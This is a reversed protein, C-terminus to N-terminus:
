QDGRRGCGAAGAGAIRRASLEPQLPRPGRSVLGMADIVEPNDVLFVEDDHTENPTFLVRAFWEIAPRREYSRRGSLRLLTIRAISDLPMPRGGEVVLIRQLPALDTIRLEGAAFTGQVDLAAGGDQGWAAAAALLLALGAAVLAGAQAGM